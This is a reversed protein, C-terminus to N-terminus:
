TAALPPPALWRVSDRPAPIPTGDAARMFPECYTISPADPTVDVSVDTFTLPGFEFDAAPPQHSVFRSRTTPRGGMVGVAYIRTVANVDRDPFRRADLLKPVHLGRVYVDTLGAGRGRQGQGLFSFNGTRTTILAGRDDDQAQPTALQWLKHLVRHVYVGDIRSGAVGRNYGYSGINLVGGVDGQLVTVDSVRLDNAAIKIADDAVHVFLQDIVSGDGGVEPGDAAHVWNGVVKVDHLWAPRNNAARDVKAAILEALSAMPTTVVNVNVAAQHRTPASAVTLGDIRIAFADPAASALSVLNSDILYEAIEHAHVSRIGGGQDAFTGREDLLSCTAGRALARVRARNSLDPRCLLPSGDIRGCGVVEITRTTPQNATGIWTVTLPHPGRGGAAVFAAAAALQADSVRFAAFQSSIPYTSDGNVRIHLPPGTPAALLRYYLDGAYILYNAGGEQRLSWRPATGDRCWDVREADDRSAVGDDTPRLWIALLTSGSDAMDQDDQARANGTNETAPDADFCPVISLHQCDRGPLWLSTLGSLRYSGDIGRVADAPLLGVTGSHSDGSGRAGVLSRLRSPLRTTASITITIADPLGGRYVFQQTEVYRFCQSADPRQPSGPQWQWSFPDAHQLRRAETDADATMPYGHQGAARFDDGRDPYQVVYRLAPEPVRAPGSPASTM